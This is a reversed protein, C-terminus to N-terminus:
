PALYSFHCVCNKRFPLFSEDVVGGLWAALSEGHLCGGGGEVVGNFCGVCEGVLASIIESDSIEPVIECSTDRGCFAERVTSSPHKLYM